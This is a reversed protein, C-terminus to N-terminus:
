AVIVRVNDNFWKLLFNFGGEYTNGGLVTADLQTIADITPQQTAFAKEKLMTEFYRRTKYALTNGINTINGITLDVVPNGVAIDETEKVRYFDVLELGPTTRQGAVTLYLILKEFDMGEGVTMGQSKHITM